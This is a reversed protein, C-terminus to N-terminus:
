IAVAATVNKGASGPVVPEITAGSRVGEEEIGLQVRLGVDVADHIEVRILVHDAQGALREALEFRGARQLRIREVGALLSVVRRIADDVVLTGAAKVVIGVARARRRLDLEGDQGFLRQQGELIERDDLANALALVLGEPDSPSKRNSARRTHPGAWSGTPTM